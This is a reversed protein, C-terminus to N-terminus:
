ITYCFKKKIRVGVLKFLYGKCIKIFIGSFLNGGLARARMKIKKKVRISIEFLIKKVKKRVDYDQKEISVRVFFFEQNRMSQSYM